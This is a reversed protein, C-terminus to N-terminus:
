IEIPIIELYLKLVVYKKIRKNYGRKIFEIEINYNDLFKNIAPAFIIICFFVTPWAILFRNFWLSIFNEGTFTILIICASVVTSTCFSMILAFVLLRIGTM